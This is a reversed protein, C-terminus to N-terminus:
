NNPSITKSVTSRPLRHSDSFIHFPFSVPLILVLLAWDTPHRCFLYSLGAAHEFPLPWAFCTSDIKPCQPPLPFPPPPRTYDISRTNALPLGTLLILKPPTVETHTHMCHAITCAAASYPKVPAIYRPFYTTLLQIHLTGCLATITICHLGM